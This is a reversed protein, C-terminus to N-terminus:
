AGLDVWVGARVGQVKNTSSNYIVIGNNDIGPLHGFADGREFITMPTVRWANGTRTSLSDAHLDDEVEVEGDQGKLYRWADRLGRMRTLTQADGVLWTIPNVWAM